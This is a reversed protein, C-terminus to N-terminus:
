KPGRYGIIAGWIAKKAALDAETVDPGIPTQSEELTFKIQFDSPKSLAHKKTVLLNKVVSTLQM